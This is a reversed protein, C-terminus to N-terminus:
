RGADLSAAAEQLFRLDAVDQASLARATDSSFFALTRDVDAETLGGDPAWARGELYVQATRPWTPSPGLKRTAEAVLLDPDSALDRNAILRARLYDVVVDPHAAAFDTNVQVGTTKISPWRAAFDVLINFRGPAQETLWQLVGLEIGSADITGSILAAARNESDQIYLYIPKAAPCEEALYARILATGVSAEGHLALRRGSLAACTSIEPAVIFRHPNTSHEMVTRVRAGKAVAAWPTNISGNGFQVEGRSLADVVLDAGSYHVEEVQYGQERLRDHALLSPLDGFNTTGSYSVRITRADAQRDAPKCAAGVLASLAIHACIAAHVWTRKLSTNMARGDYIWSM